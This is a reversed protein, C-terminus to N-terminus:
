ATETQNDAPTGTTGDLDLALEPVTPLDLTMM